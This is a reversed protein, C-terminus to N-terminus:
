SSCTWPLSIGKAPSLCIGIVHQMLNTAAVSTTVCLRLQLAPFTPGDWMLLSDPCEALGTGTFGTSDPGVAQRGCNRLCLQGGCGSALPPGTFPSSCALQMCVTSGTSGRVAHLHVHQGRPYDPADERLVLSCNLDGLGM